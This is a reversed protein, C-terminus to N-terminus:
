RTFLTSGESWYVTRPAAVSMALVPVEIVAYLVGVLGGALSPSVHLAELEWSM